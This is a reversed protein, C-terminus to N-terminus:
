KLFERSQRELSALAESVTDKVRQTHFEGDIYTRFEAEDQSLHALETVADVSGVLGAVWAAPGRVAPDQSKLYNPVRPIVDRVLEPDQRALRLLGWLLGRQLPEYELYNGEEDAYSCFVSIYERALASHRAMAEAMVEPAGWGIGGSEDNLSWMLRRMVIRASEMDSDALRAIVTGMAVVARWRITENENLLLSFLPNVVQRGPMRELEALSENVDEAQLLRLIKRKLARGGTMEREM